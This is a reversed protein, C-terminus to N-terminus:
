AQAKKGEICDIVYQEVEEFPIGLVVSLESYLSRKAYSEYEVDVETLHRKAAAFARRRSYVTKIVKVFGEPVLSAVTQKYIDRRMKENEIELECIEPMKDILSSADCKEMLTRSAIKTNEVPTYIVTAAGFLPSLVYYTKTDNEDFPSACIDKIQCVGSKGYMIYDGVKYM